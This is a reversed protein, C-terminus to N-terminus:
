DHQPEWQYAALQSNLETHALNNAYNCLAALSLGLLVDLAHQQQYGAAFFDHLVQESVAGKHALAQRSFVSLANLKADPLAAQNRLAQILETSLKAKHTALASHGAVCFRCGNDTAAVLQVVEREQANLSSRSNIESVTQYMELATPAYALVGLLNSQFGNAKEASILRPQAAASANEPTLPHFHSM